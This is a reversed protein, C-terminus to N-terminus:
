NKEGILNKYIEKDKINEFLGQEVIKGQEMFVYFPDYKKLNEIRNTILILIKGKSIEKIMDFIDREMQPDLASTPEDLIVVDANRFLVRSLAIRQWQGKSLERGGFWNGM